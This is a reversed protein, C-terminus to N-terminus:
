RKDRLLVWPVQMPDFQEREARLLYPPMHDGVLLIDTKPFAPDTLQKGLADMLEDWIIFQRCIMASGAVVAPVDSRCHDTHLGADAPVPLHSNLTLWYVFQPTRAAKLKAALIAPVDRDCAGIFLGGCEHAGAAFLKERFATQEFGINRYWINREFMGGDFSHFATTQYGTAKLHAPLCRTDATDIVEEYRGWRGCLARMEANTTSGAYPSTGMTVRYREAIDPRRWRALLRERFVRDTPLGLSEVMVLMLHRDRKPHAVFGSRTVASAFPMEGAMARGYDGKTDFTMMSDVGAMALTFGIALAMSRNNPLPTRRRLVLVGLVLIVVAAVAAVVYFSSGVVRMEFLYGVSSVLDYAPLNFLGSLFTMASYLTATLFVTCRLWYPRNRILVGIAGIVFVQTTRGPAGISWLLWCGINPLIVWCLVWARLGHPRLRWISGDRFAQAAM